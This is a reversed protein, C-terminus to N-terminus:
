ATCYLVMVAAYLIASSSSMSTIGSSYDVGLLYM